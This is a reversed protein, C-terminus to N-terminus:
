AHGDGRLQDLLPQIRHELVDRTLPGVQRYRVVGQADIVYTEPVGYVGFDIGARGDADVLSQRYPDGMERLWALAAPPTDKYNLGYVPVPSRAAFDVLLPHESRCAACWSAWVNLIWVKGRLDATTVTRPGDRAALVPLAFAPAPKGVLASPLERPDHRLGAGLALVIALFLALPLLFRTM